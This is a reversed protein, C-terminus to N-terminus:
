EDVEGRRERDRRSIEKEIADVEERLDAEQIQLKHRVEEVDFLEEGDMEVRLYAEFDEMLALLFFGNFKTAAMRAFNGRWRGSLHSVLAGIVARTRDESPESTAKRLAAIAPSPTAATEAPM